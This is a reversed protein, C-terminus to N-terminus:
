VHARGIELVKQAATELAPRELVNCGLGIASDGLEGALAEAPEPHLGLVAVKAGQEVLMRCMAACLVGAGGTVVAVKGNIDFSPSSM